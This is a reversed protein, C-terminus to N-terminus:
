EPRSRVRRRASDDLLGTDELLDAADVADGCLRAPVGLSSAIEDIAAEAGDSIRDVQWILVSHVRGPNRRALDRYIEADREGSDGVCVVSTEPHDELITEIAALKHARSSRRLADADSVWDTLFLPGVPIQNADLIRELVPALNWPSTSVYFFPAGAAALEQYLAPVGPLTSRREPAETLTELVMRLPDAVGTNVVTDDIDSVIAVSPPEPPVEGRVVVVAGQNREPLLATIHVQHAGTALPGSGVLDVFGNRDTVGRAITGGVQAEVEVGRREDTIFLRSVDKLTTLAGAGPTLIVAPREVVRVRCRWREATMCLVQVELCVPSGLGVRHRVARIADTTALRSKTAAELWWPAPQTTEEPEAMVAAKCTPPSAPDLRRTPDAPDKTHKVARPTPEQQDRPHDRHLAEFRMQAWLSDLLEPPKEPVRRCPRPSHSQDSCKVTVRAAQPILREASGDIQSEEIAEIVSQPDQQVVVELALRLEDLRRDAVECPRAVTVEVGSGIPEPVVSPHGIGHCPNQPPGVESREQRSALARGGPRM